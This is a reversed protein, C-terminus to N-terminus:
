KITLKEITLCGTKITLGNVSTEGASISYSANFGGSLTFNVGGDLTLAENFDLAQCEMTDGNEAYGYATGPTSYYDIPSAGVLRVPLYVLTFSWAVPSSNGANDSVSGGITHLGSSLHPSLCSIQSETITCNSAPGGDLTLASSTTDIGSASDYLDAAITPYANNTTGSPTVNTVQPATKDLKAHVTKPSEQNTVNDVSYYSIVHDGETNMAVSTGTQLSGGDIQYKTEFCGSGSGDDCTLTVTFNATQWSVPANDSTAPPLADVTRTIAVATGTGGDSTARMNLTLADGNAASIGTKTCTWTPGTGTLTAAAWETDCTGDTSVCYECDAITSENDTFTASLDFTGDVFSGYQTNSATVVGAEPPTADSAVVANWFGGYNKYGASQSSGIASSQGTTASQAYGASGTDGGGGSLVDSRIAYNASTMAFSLPPSCMFLFLALFFNPSIRRCYHTLDKM